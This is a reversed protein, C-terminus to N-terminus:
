LVERKSRETLLSIVEKDDSELLVNKWFDYLPYGSSKKLSEM